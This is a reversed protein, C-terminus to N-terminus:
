GDEGPEREGAALSRRDHKAAIAGVPELPLSRPRYFERPGTPARPAAVPAEDSVTTTACTRCHRFYKRTRTGRSPESMPGACTPCRSGDAGPALTVMAM